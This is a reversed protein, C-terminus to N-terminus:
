VTLENEAALFEAESFILQAKLITITNDVTQQAGEFIKISLLVHLQYIM